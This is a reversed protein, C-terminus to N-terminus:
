RCINTCVYAFVRACTCVCVCVCVGIPESPVPNKGELSCRPQKPPPGDEARVCAVGESLAGGVNPVGGGPRKRMILSTSSLSRCKAVESETASGNMLLIPPDDTNDHSTSSKLQLSNESGLQRTEEPNTQYNDTPVSSVPTQPTIDNRAGNGETRVATDGALPTTPTIARTHGAVQAARPLMNGDVGEGLLNGSGNRESSTPGAEQPESGTM